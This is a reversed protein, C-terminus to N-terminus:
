NKVHSDENIIPLGSLDVGFEGSILEKLKNALATSLLLDNKNACIYIAEMPVLPIDEGHYEDAFDVEHDDAPCFLKGDVM